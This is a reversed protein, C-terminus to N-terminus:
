VSSPKEKQLRLLTQVVDEAPDREGSPSPEPLGLIRNIAIQAVPDAHYAALLRLDEASIAPRSSTDPLDHGLLYDVSVHFFDALSVLTKNDPERKGLEWNGIAAQSVNLARALESQTLRFNKRLNVLRTVDM